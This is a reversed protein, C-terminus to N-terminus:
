SQPIVKHQNAQIFAQAYEPRKFLFSHTTDVGGKPVVAYRLDCCGGNALSSADQLKAQRVQYGWLVLAACSLLAGILGFRTSDALSRFLLFFPFLGLSALLVCCGFTNDAETALEIHRACTACYPVQGAQISVRVVKHGVAAPGELSQGCCACTYPWDLLRAAVSVLVPEGPSPHPAQMFGAPLRAADATPAPVPSTNGPSLPKSPRPVGVASIASQPMASHPPAPPSTRTSQINGSATPLSATTSSNLVPTPPLATDAQRRAAELADAWPLRAGCEYCVLTSYPNPEGCEVCTGQQIAQDQLM